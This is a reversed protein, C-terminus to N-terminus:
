ATKRTFSLVDPFFAALRGTNIRDQSWEMWVSRDTNHVVAAVEVPNDISVAGRNIVLKQVSSSDLPQNPYLNSIFQEADKQVISAKSGGDYAVSLRVFYPTLHRVLPSYCTVREAEDMVFNQVEAILASSDYNVKLNQGILNVSNILSDATGVPFYVAPIRMWSKESM